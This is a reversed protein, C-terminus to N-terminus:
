HVQNNITQKWGELALRLPGPFFFDTQKNIFFCKIISIIEITISVHM